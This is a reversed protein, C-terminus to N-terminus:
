SGSWGAIRAMLWWFARGKQECSTFTTHGAEDGHFKDHEVPVWITDHYAYNSYEWANSSTNFWWCDLDAFDFLTKGNAKCYDRIQQNRLHRNYGADGDMQANGTMYVFKVGPFETELVSISDLYAQVEEASYGDLQTCWAWLSVRISPNDSLVARTSDMGEATQWYLDPTIYSVTEQGDFICLAGTEAPLSMETVAVSYVPDASEIRDLGTNIQSGHSTHAYHVKLTKASDLWQDPIQALDTCTHDIGFGEPAPGENTKRCTLTVFILCLLLITPKHLNIWVYKM